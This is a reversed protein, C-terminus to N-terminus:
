LCEVIWTHKASTRQTGRSTKGYIKEPLGVLATNIKRAEKEILEIMNEGVEEYDKIM